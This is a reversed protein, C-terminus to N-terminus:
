MDCYGVTELSKKLRFGLMFSLEVNSKNKNKDLVLSILFKSINNLTFYLERGTHLLRKFDKIPCKHIFSVSRFLSHSLFCLFLSGFDLLPFFDAAGPYIHRAAYQQSNALTLM